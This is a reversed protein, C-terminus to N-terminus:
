GGRRPTLRALAPARGPDAAPAPPPEPPESPAAAEGGLANLALRLAHRAHSREAPDANSWAGKGRYSEYIARAARERSEDTSTM